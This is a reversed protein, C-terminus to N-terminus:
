GNSGDAAQAQGAAAAHAVLRAALLARFAAALGPPAGRYSPFYNVDVVVHDGSAGDVVVDFGLLDLGLAARLHRAIAALAGADLPRPPPAAAAAAADAVPLSKLSDFYRVGPPGAAGDGGAGRGGEGGVGGGVGVGGVGCAGAAPQQPLLPAIDPISPRPAAYLVGPGLVYAKHQLGGHNVFEQVVAPAPVSLGGGLAGEDAVLAMAHSDALGCAPVPKVIYPPAMRAAALAARLAPADAAALSPALVRRPARVRPGGGGGGGAPLTELLAGLRVRDAVAAAADFGDVVCLRPSRAAVAAKLAAMRASLRPAGDEGYELEDSAKHLLVHLPALQPALPAALDLRVFSVGDGDALLGSERLQQERSAKMAFGVLIAAAAGAAAPQGGAGGAASPPSPAAQM